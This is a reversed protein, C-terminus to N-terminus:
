QSSALAQKLYAALDCRQLDALERFKIHRRGKGAGELVGAPDPMAAGQGFELSVHAMYGFVGCFATGKVSLLLGGYKVEEKVDAALALVAARLAMVLAHRQEGVLRQDDLWHAVRQAVDVPQAKATRARTM